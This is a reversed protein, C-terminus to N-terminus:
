GQREETVLRVFIDELTMREASLELLGCGAGVVAGALARRVARASAEDGPVTQVLFAYPRSGTARDEKGDRLEVSAVGPVDLLQEAIREAPGEVELLLREGGRMARSLEEPSGEAVVRGQDIIVVRSCLTSVEPLIHTSLLVTHDGALDRILQRVEIIQRPDLGVTPEDLILVPPNPLIAQALGVRQRYGRSLRGIPRDRVEVLGCRDLVEDFRKAIRRVNPVRLSAAFRLYEEVRMEPYLPVQEPLYGLSRRAELSHEFIDYGALRATGASPALCGALIRMTTSKGAGNPGLFGLIEGQEVRFSVDQIAPRIGFTKCLGCVEIM